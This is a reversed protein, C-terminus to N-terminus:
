FNKVMTLPAVQPAQQKRPTSLLTRTHLLCLPGLSTLRTTYNSVSAQLSLTAILVFLIPTHSHLVLSALRSKTSLQTHLWPPTNSSIHSSYCTLPFHPKCSRARAIALWLKWKGTINHPNNTVRPSLLLIGTSNSQSTLASKMFLKM